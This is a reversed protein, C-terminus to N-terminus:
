RHTEWGIAGCAQVDALVLGWGGGLAFNCALVKLLVQLGRERTFTPKELALFQGHVMSPDGQAVDGHLPVTVDAHLPVQLLKCSHADIARCCLCCGLCGELAGPGAYLPPLDWKGM